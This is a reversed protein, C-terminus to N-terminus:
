NLARRLRANDEPLRCFGGNPRLNRLGWYPLVVQKPELASFILLSTAIVYPISFQSTPAPVTEM